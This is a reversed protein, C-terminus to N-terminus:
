DLIIKDTKQCVWLSQKFDSSNNSIEKEIKELLNPDQELKKWDEALLLMFGDKYKYFEYDNKSHILVQTKTEEYNGKFYQVDLGQQLVKENIWLHEATNDKKLIFYDINDQNIEQTSYTICSFIRDNKSDIELPPFSQMHPLFVFGEFKNYLVKAWLGELEDLSGFENTIEVLEVKTGQPLFDITDSDFSTSEYTYTGENNKVYLYIKNDINQLPSSEKKKCSSLLLFVLFVLFIRM